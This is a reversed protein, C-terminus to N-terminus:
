HVSPVRHLRSAVPQGLTPSARRDLVVALESQAPDLANSITIARRITPVNSGLEDMWGERAGAGDM